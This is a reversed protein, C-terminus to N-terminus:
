YAGPEVCFDRSLLNSYHEWMSKLSFFQGKMMENQLNEMATEFCLFEPDKEREPEGKQDYKRCFLVYCKLHYKGGTAM